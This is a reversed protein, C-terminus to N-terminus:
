RPREGLQDCGRGGGNGNGGQLTCPYTRLPVPDCSTSSHVEALPPEEVPATVSSDLHSLREETWVLVTVRRARRAAKRKRRKM